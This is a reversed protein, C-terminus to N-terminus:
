SRPRHPTTLLTRHSWGLFSTPTDGVERAGDRARPSLRWGTLACALARPWLTLGLRRWCTSQWAPCRFAAASLRSGAGEPTARGSRVELFSTYDSELRAWVEPALLPPLPETSLTLDPAGLFNPSSPLAPASAAAAAGVGRQGPEFGLAM